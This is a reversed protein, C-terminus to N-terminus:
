QAVDQWINFKNGDTDKLKFQLGCGDHDVLPEVQVGNERLKKHLGVINEVEFTLSFMEYNEGDWQDTIFNATRKEKTEILFLWQGEGLVMISGETNFRKLNFNEEYWKSAKELNSVPLYNCHVRKLLPKDVSKKKQVQILNKEM